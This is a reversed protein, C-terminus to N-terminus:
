SVETILKMGNGPEYFKIAHGPEVELTLFLRARQDARANFRTQWGLTAQDTPKADLAANLAEGEEMENAYHASETPLVAPAETRASDDSSSCAVVGVVGVVGVLCSAGIVRLLSM